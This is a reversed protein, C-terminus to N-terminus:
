EEDETSYAGRYEEDIQDLEDVVEKAKKKNIIRKIVNYAVVGTAAVLGVILAGKVCKGADIATTEMANELVEENVMIENEM